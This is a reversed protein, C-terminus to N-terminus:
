IAGSAHIVKEIAAAAMKSLIGLAHIEQMTIRVMGQPAKQSSGYELYIIYPVQNSITVRGVNSSPRTHEMQWGGRARGTDVPTRQAIRTNAVLGVARLVKDAEDPAFRKAKELFGYFKTADYTLGM